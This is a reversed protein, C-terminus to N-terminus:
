EEMRSLFVLKQTLDSLRKVQNRISTLWPSEGHEMELVETNADIITLPTKLEHGADTIFQKQKEYSEAVPKMVLGSFILVLIFVLAIGAASVGLTNWLFSYFTALETECDLFIYLFGTDTDVKVFKYNNYFG